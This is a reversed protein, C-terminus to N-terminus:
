TCTPDTPAFGREAEPPTTWLRVDIPVIGAASKVFNDSRADGLWIDFKPYSRKWLWYRQKRPILGAEELFKNVEEQSPPAGSIFQHTSVVQGIETIGCAM